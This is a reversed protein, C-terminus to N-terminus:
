NLIEIIEPKTKIAYENKSAYLEFEEDTIRKWLRSSNRVSLDLLNSRFDRAVAKAFDM